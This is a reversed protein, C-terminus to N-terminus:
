FTDAGIDYTDGTFQLSFNLNASYGSTVIFRLIKFRMTPTNIDSPYWTDNSMTQQFTLQDQILTWTIGDDSGVVAITKPTRNTVGTRRSVSLSKICFKYPLNVQIYDGEISGTTHITTFFYNSGGGTYVGSTNYCSSIANPSNEVGEM